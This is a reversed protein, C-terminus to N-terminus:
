QDNPWGVELVRVRSKISDTALDLRYLLYITGFLVLGLGSLYGALVLLEGYTIGSTVMTAFASISGSIALSGGVLLLTFLSGTWLQARRMSMSRSQAAADPTLSGTLKSFMVKYIGAFIVAVGLATGGLVLVAEYNPITQGPTVSGWYILVALEAVFIAGLTIYLPRKAIRKEEGRDIFPLVFLAAFILTIVTLGLSLGVTGEFVDLKLIQYMWLFYWDPQPPPTNPAAPISFQAPLAYPFAASIVLLAATFLASLELLYVTVNPFLPILRQQKPTLEGAPPAIGHAELMYMKGFLLLLLAAPLLVIHIAEFRVLETSYGSTVGLLNKAFSVVPQSPASEAPQHGRKTADVSIQTWPLVYGTFGFGLTVFGMLMGVLWMAERPKKFSSVFYNRMMHMVALLIMSYAGYLHITELFRGDTVSSFIFATSQYASAPDPVYWVLLIMGTVAQITFAVVTLAGLWYFPNISFRPVPRLLPYSLGLRSDLWRVVRVVPGQKGAGEEDAM